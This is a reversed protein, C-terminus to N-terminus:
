YAYTARTQIERVPLTVAPSAPATLQITQAGQGPLVFTLDYTTTTTIDYSDVASQGSNSVSAPPKPATTDLGQPATPSPASTPAPRAQPEDRGCGTLVLAALLAMGLVVPGSRM